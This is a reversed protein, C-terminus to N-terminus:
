LEAYNGCAYRRFSCCQTHSSSTLKCTEIGLLPYYTNPVILEFDSIRVTTDYFNASVPYLHNMNHVTFHGASVRFIVLLQSTIVRNLKPFAM